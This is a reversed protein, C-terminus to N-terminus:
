AWRSRSGSSATTTQQNTVLSMAIALGIMIPFYLRYASALFTMAVVFGTMALLYCFCANAIELNGEARATRYVRNVLALASGVGLIYFIMAPLGCESSVQTWTCHTAHWSGLKGESLRMHGEHNAFQDPGVGLLPHQLTFKVSQNFLYSRTAASDDAELHEKGFMSALRNWTVRPLTASIVIALAAGVVMLAIRQQMSARWLAFLVMAMIAMLGGRSATGLIVWVGYGIPGIIAIRFFANRRSDLAVFLMFPLLLVL